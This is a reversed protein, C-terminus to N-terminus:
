KKFVDYKLGFMLRKGYYETQMTRNKQSQYYRLPQNTINTLDAYFRLKKTFAYGINFDLFFQQDYYRDYFAEKGIEDIYADSFNASVRATFRGDDYGLSGNFMHPATNPLPMNAREDGDENTIGKANSTLYTYNLYLNFNKAFGPLFTLKRQLAAELGFVSADNGNEPRLIDFDNTNTGLSDDTAKSTAAYAFDNITKYFVGGSIIGVNSFYREGMIDFNISKAPKLNPNGVEIMDDERIINRYPVLDIYNARAITNTYAFRFVTKPNVAYKLHVSPLINTYANDDTIATHNEYDGDDNYNVTYGTTAITTHELRAGTLLTLKDSLQQETMVYGAYVNEQANYNGGQFEDHILKGKATNLNLKGLWEESAFVGAKYQNGALFDDETYNKTALQGLNEYDSELDFEYFNNDRKKEKLRARAGFKLFGDKSNFLQLPLQFNTFVNVDVEDTYQNEESVGDYGFNELNSAEAANEATFLPFEPNSNDNLVIYDGEFAAYRENLREESAKAYATIWDFKLNGFLHDGGLTYNQMRQDELRRNKNRNNNIGGKTERTVDVPFRVPTNNTITFNGEEIDEGDRIELKTRFRNERDDRWNYMSKFYLQHNDNIQYDFNASFSRRVRQVLYLRQQFEKTFPNVDVEELIPEEDADEGTKYEFTNDWEAEINHSRFDTNNVSASAMWGFKGNKTRDGVLFSGNLIRKDNVFTIGSGATASLRFNQPATRTVLNVSGGLADADMDPTVAKNVQITQIMDAPILDMQVNRNDGEASPIRSGNLTVANLQPSLGRVIVNRAEGQDVQMTIGSVRKIADGINADPFKGIQDTSIVNSININSKQKNLAKAEGGISASITVEDLVTNDPQIIVKVVTNSKVTVQVTKKVTQYGMYAITLEHSGEPINLMTFRGDFDSITGKKIAELYVNAGLVYLGNDDIIVGSITGTQAQMKLLGIGLFLTVLIVKFVNNQKM